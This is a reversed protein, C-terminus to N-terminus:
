SGSEPGLTAQGFRGKGVEVRFAAVSDPMAAIRSQDESARSAVSVACNGGNWTSAVQKPTAAM